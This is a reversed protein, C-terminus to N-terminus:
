THMDMPSTVHFGSKLKRILMPTNPIARHMAQALFDLSLEQVMTMHLVAIVM